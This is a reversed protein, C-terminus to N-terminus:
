LDDMPAAVYKERLYKSVWRVWKEPKGFAWLVADCMKLPGIHADDPFFLPTDHRHIKKFFIYQKVDACALIMHLHSSHSKNNVGARAEGVVEDPFGPHLVRCYTDHRVHNQVWSM